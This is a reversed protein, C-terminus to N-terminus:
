KMEGKKDAFAYCRVPLDDELIIQMASANLPNILVPSKLNVTSQALTDRVVMIFWIEFDDEEANIKALEEAPICKKYNEVDSIIKSSALIFCLEPNESSQLWAIVDPAEDDQLVVYETYEEFGYLPQVFKIISNDAIEIEGFDRTKLKM